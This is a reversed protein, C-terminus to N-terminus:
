GRDSVLFDTGNRQGRIILGMSGAGRELTVCTKESASIIAAHWEIHEIPWQLDPSRAIARGGGKVRPRTNRM